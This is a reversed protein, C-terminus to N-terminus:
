DVRGWASVKPVQYLSRASCSAVFKGGRWLCSCNPASKLCDSRLLFLSNAPKNAALILSLTIFFSAVLLMMQRKLPKFRTRTTPEDPEGIVRASLEAPRKIPAECKAAARPRAKKVKRRKRM